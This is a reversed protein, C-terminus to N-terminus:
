QALSHPTRLEQVLGALGALLLLLPLLILLARLWRPLVRRPALTFARRRAPVRGIAPRRIRDPPTLVQEVKRVCIGTICLRCIELYGVLSLLSSKFPIGATEQPPSNLRNKAHM